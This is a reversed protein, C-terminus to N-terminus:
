LVDAALLFLMGAADPELLPLLIFKFDKKRGRFKCVCNSIDLYCAGFQGVDQQLETFNLSIFV